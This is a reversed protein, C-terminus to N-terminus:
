EDMGPLDPAILRMRGALQGALPGFYTSSVGLGHVLVLPPGSGIRRIRVEPLKSGDASSTDMSSPMGPSPMSPM